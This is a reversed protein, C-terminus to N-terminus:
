DRLLLGCISRVESDSDTNAADRLLSTLSPDRRAAIVSAAAKRVATNNSKMLRVLAENIDHSDIRSIIAVVVPALEDNATELIKFLAPLRGETPLRLATKLREQKPGAQNYHLSDPGLLHVLIKTAEFETRAALFKIATSSLNEDNDEAALGLVNVVEPSTFSVLASLAMLRTPIDGSRTGELIVPLDENRHSIGLGVMAARRIELDESVAASRLADHARTTNLHSLSEVAAVRVQGATDNLLAVVEETAAEFELRGTSQCAYYRVWSDEDALGRLLISLARENTKPLQGLARMALARTRPVESRAIEYIAEFAQSSEMYPLGQIAAERVRPDLDQLGTLLSPLAESDGFYALIRLAARRVTANESSSAARAMQRAERNGLAQIAATASHVVSSNEDSLLSFIQGVYKAQGIRALAECALSRVEPDSDRLCEAVAAGAELQNVIPLLVKRRTSDGVELASSLSRDTDNAIRKMAEAAAAAVPAAADLAENLVLNAESSGISGLLQCIAISESTNAVPLLRTLRRIMENDAQSRILEEIVVANGGSKEEFGTKLEALATVALRIVSDHSSRLLEVLPKVASKEGTRGLARAAEPLYSSNLLLQALPEVARPDGSRGLVEIAPFTRFFNGSKVCVVLADVAPRGGIRGLAEIANVAVNDDHDRTMEILFPIGDARRRRGLIQAADAKIAPDTAFILKRFEDTVPIDILALADVAAAIRAENNRTYLLADILVPEAKVSGGGLSRVVERRMLWSPDILMAVLPAFDEARGLARAKELRSNEFNTGTVMEGSSMM